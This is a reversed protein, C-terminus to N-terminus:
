FCLKEKLLVYMESFDHKRERFRKPSALTEWILEWISGFDVYILMFLSSPFPISFLELNSCFRRGCISGFDVYILMFYSLFATSSFLELLLAIELEAPARRDEM